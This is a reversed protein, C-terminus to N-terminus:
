LLGVWITLKVTLLLFLVMTIDGLTAALPTTINDPDWGRNYTLIAIFATLFTLFIGSLTGSVLSIFVFALFSMHEFGLIMCTIYAVFAIFISMIVNLIISSELNIKLDDNMKFDPNIYGLHLASGLRSGLTSSINGRLDLIGPLLVLLGPLLKLSNEIGLLFMGAVLEFIGYITVTPLSQKIIHEIETLSNLKKM